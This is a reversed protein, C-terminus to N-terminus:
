SNGINCSKTIASHSVKELNITDVTKLPGMLLQSSEDDNLSNKLLVSQKVKKQAIALVKIKFSINTCKTEKFLLM